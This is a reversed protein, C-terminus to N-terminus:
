QGLHLNNERWQEFTSLQCPLDLTVAGIESWAGHVSASAWIKYSASASGSIQFSFENQVIGIITLVAADPLDNFDYAVIGNNTNLLFLRGGGFQVSGTINLNPEDSPLIEQDILKPSAPDSIDFLRVNDPSEM